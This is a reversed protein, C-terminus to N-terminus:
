RPPVCCWEVLVFGRRGGRVRMSKEWFNNQIFYCGGVVICGNLTRHTLTTKRQNCGYCWRVRWICEWGVGFRVQLFVYSDYFACFSFHTDVAVNVFQTTVRLPVRTMSWLELVCVTHVTSLLSPCVSFFAHKDCIHDQTAILVQQFRYFCFNQNFFPLELQIKIRM